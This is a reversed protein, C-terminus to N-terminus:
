AAYYSSSIEDSISKATLNESVRLVTSVSSAHSQLPYLLPHFGLGMETRDLPRYCILATNVLILCLPEVIEDHTNTGRVMGRFSHKYDSDRGNVTEASILCTGVQSSGDWFM